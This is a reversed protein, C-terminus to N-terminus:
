ESMARGVMEELEPDSLEWLSRHSGAHHLELHRGTESQVCTRNTIRWPTGDRDRWVFGGARAAGLYFPLCPDPVSYVDILGRCLVKPSDLGHKPDGTFVLLKGPAYREEEVLFLDWTRGTADKWSRLQKRIALPLVTEPKTRYAGFSTKSVRRRLTGGTIGGTGGRFQGAGTSLLAPWNGKVLRM